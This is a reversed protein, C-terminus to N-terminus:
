RAGTPAPEVEVMGRRQTFFVPPQESHILLGQGARLRQLAQATTGDHEDGRKGLLRLLERRTGDDTISGLFIKAQSLALIEAAADNGFRQR